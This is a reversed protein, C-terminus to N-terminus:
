QGWEWSLPLSNTGMNTTKYINTAFQSAIPQKGHSLSFSIIKRSTVKLFIKLKNVGM